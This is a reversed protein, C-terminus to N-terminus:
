AEGSRIAGRLANLREETVLGERFLSATGAVFIDAGAARMKVANELSVNGDVEIEVTQYGREDLWKRTRRIKDPAAPVMKQGAFGPNVSMILVGDLDDLVERLSEVPTSPNLAVMARAGAARIRALVRQLHPTSEWHVSVFDGPRFDFWDLKSEPHEVMLHVDLPINTHRRLQKCYDTGLTFNPVFHGDMIDIHLYEVGNRQFIELTEGLACIDACMLSPSLKATNM